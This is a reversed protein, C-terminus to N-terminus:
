HLRPIVAAFAGVLADLFVEISVAFAITAHSSAVYFSVSGQAL